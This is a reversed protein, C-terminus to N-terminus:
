AKFTVNYPDLNGAFFALRTARRARECRPANRVSERAVRRTAPRPEILAGGWVVFGDDGTNEFHARRRLTAYLVRGCAIGCTSYQWISNEFHARRV